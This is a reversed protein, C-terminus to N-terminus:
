DAFIKIDSNTILVNELLFYFSAAPERIHSHVAEGHGAHSYILYRSTLCFLVNLSM